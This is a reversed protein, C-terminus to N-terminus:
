GAGTPVGDWGKRNRVAQVRRWIDQSMTSQWVGGLLWAFRPSAAAEAEIREIFMEGHLSLLDELPSAALTNLYPTLRDDQLAALIALWADEPYEEVAWNFEGWGVLSEGDAEKRGPRRIWEAWRLWEDLLQPLPLPASMTLQQNLEDRVSTSPEHMDLHAGM